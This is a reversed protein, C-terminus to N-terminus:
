FVSLLWVVCLFLFTNNRGVAKVQDSPHFIDLVMMHIFWIDCQTLGKAGVINKKNFVFLFAECFVFPRFFLFDGIFCCSVAKTIKLDAREFRVAKFLNGTFMCLIFFNFSWCGLLCFRCAAIKGKNNYWINYCVECNFLFWIHKYLLFKLTQQKKLFCFDKGFSEVATKKWSLEL